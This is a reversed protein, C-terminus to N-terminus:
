KLPLNIDSETSLIDNVFCLVIWGFCYMKLLKIVGIFSNYTVRYGAYVAVCYWSVMFIFKAHEFQRFIKSTSM